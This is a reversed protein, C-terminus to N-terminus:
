SSLHFISAVSLFIQMVDVYLSIAGAIYEDTDLSIRKGGMIMQIDFWLYLSFLLAVIGSYVIFLVKLKLFLGIIMVIIGTLMVVLSGILLYMWYKTIDCPLFLALIIIIVCIGLTIGISGLIIYNKYRCTIVAALYSFALTFLGLLIINLPFIQRCIKYCMLTIYLIVWLVMAVIAVIIDRAVFIRLKPIYMVLLLFGLSFLLQVTLIIFVIQIFRRREDEDEFGSMFRSDEDSEEDYQVAQQYSPPPRDYQQRQQPNVYQQQVQPSYQQRQYQATNQPQYYNSEHQQPPGYDRRAENIPVKFPQKYKPIKEQPEINIICQKQKCQSYVTDGASLTTANVERVEINVTEAAM